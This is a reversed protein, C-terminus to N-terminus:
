TDPSRRVILYQCRVGSVQFRSLGSGQFRYVKSARLTFTAEVLQAKVNSPM